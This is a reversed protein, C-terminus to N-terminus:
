YQQFENVFALASNGALDHHEKEPEGVATEPMSDPFPWPNQQDELLHTIPTSLLLQYFQGQDTAKQLASVIRPRNDAPNLRQAQRDMRHAGAELYAARGALGSIVFDPRWDALNGPIVSNPSHDDSM